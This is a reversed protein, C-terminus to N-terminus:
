QILVYYLDGPGVRHQLKVRETQGVATNIAVLNNRSMEYVLGLRDDRAHHPLADWADKMCDELWLVDFAKVLDYIQIDISESEGKVVSNIIGYIIFM